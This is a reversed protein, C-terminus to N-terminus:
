SIYGERINGRRLLLLRLLLCPRNVGIRALLLLETVLLYRHLILVHIGLEDVIILYLCRRLHRHLFSWGCGISYSVSHELETNALLRRIRRLIGAGKVQFHRAHAGFVDFDFTFSKVVISEPLLHNRVENLIFIHFQFGFNVDKFSLKVLLLSQNVIEKQIGLVIPAKSVTRNDTSSSGFIRTSLFELKLAMESCVEFAFDSFHLVDGRLSLGLDLLQLSM